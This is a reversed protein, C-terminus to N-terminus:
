MAQSKVPPLQAWPMSLPVESAEEEVIPEDLMGIELEAVGVVDVATNAEIM